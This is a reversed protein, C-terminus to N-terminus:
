WITWLYFATFAVFFLGAISTGTIAVPGPRLRRPLDRHNLYLTLGAVVPIHAAEIAGAAKLLTVPQGVVLYLATPAVALGLLVIWRRIRRDAADVDATGAADPGGAPSAVAPSAAAAPGSTGRTPTTRATPRRLLRAGSAFMRSFGDQDSLVTDWFGIFVAVVMFWFGVPGWLDGLLRGLVEAVREEEPVLGRPRLLEVGLILFAMTILLTGVVAISTDLTMQRIWGRLREIDGAAPSKGAAGYGKAPLWYSYWIMGAAGSLMFGLWPLIEAADTQEPVRPLLGATLPGLSPGAAVAAIVAAIGLALAMTTAVAEVARYRGWVVLATTTAISAIAWWQVPGPLGLILATAAAGALGALTSVAVLIQPVVIFWVAWARPGPLRAFGALLNRGTCVAYRGIERNVFWKLVVALLLAWVLAYGYLSGVRPTFLLEGSGAASVMWLFGPGLWVLRRWGAPAPAVQQAM